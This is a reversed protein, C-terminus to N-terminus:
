ASVIWGFRSSREPGWAQKWLRGNCDIISPFADHQFFVGMGQEIHVFVGGQPADELARGCLGALIKERGQHFVERPGKM